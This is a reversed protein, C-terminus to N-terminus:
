RQMVFGDENPDPNVMAFFEEFEKKAWSPADDRIHWQEDEGIYAYGEEMFRQPPMDYTSEVGVM